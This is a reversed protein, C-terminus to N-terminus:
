LITNTYYTKTNIEFDCEKSLCTTHGYEQIEQLAEKITERSPKMYTFDRLFERILRDRQKETTAVAILDPPSYECSDESSYIAILKM